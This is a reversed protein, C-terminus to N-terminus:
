LGRFDLSQIETAYISILTWVHEILLGQYMAVERGHVGNGNMFANSEVSYGVGMSSM